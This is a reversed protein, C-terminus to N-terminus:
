ALAAQVLVELEQVVRGEAAPGLQSARM